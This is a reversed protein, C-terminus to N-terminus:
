SAGGTLRRVLDLHVSIFQDEESASPARDAPLLRRTLVEKQRQVM